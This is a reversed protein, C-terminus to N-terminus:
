NVSCIKAAKGRCYTLYLVNGGGATVEKPSYGIFTFSIVDNSGNVPITYNGDSNTTTSKGSGTISVSVGQLPTKNEDTVTGKIKKGIEQFAFLHGSFLLLFCCFTVPKLCNLMHLFLRVNPKYKKEM